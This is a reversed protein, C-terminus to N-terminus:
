EIQRVADANMNGPFSLIIVPSWLVLLLMGIKLFCKNGFLWESVKCSWKKGTMNIWYTTLLNVIRMVLWANGLLLFGTRMPRSLLYSINEDM